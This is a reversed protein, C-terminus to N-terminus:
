RYKCTARCVCFYISYKQKGVLPAAKCWLTNCYLVPKVTEILDAVARDRALAQEFMKIGALAPDEVVDVAVVQLRQVARQLVALALADPQVAHRGRDEGEEVLVDAAFHHFAERGRQRAGAYARALEAQAQHHM